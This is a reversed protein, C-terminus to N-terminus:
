GAIHVLQSYPLVVFAGAALAVGYPIGARPAALRSIWAQTALMAPLPVTRLAILALALIGGLVSAALAYQLVDPFGFWLAVCAFLKADGGGLHGLAFLTFALALAAIGALLHLGLVSLPLHASFSFLAFSLILGFQIWNPITYSAIDWAAAVLLLVILPALLLLSATMRYENKLKPYKEPNEGIKEQANDPSKTELIVVAAWRRGNRL